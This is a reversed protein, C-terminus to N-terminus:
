LCVQRQINTIPRIIHGDLVKSTPILLGLCCFHLPCFTFFNSRHHGRIGFDVRLAFNELNQGAKSRVNSFLLHLPLISALFFVSHGM